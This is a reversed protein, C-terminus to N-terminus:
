GRRFNAAELGFLTDSWRLSSRVSPDGLFIPEGPQVPMVMSTTPSKARDQLRACLIRAQLVLVLEDSRLCCRRTEGIISATNIIMTGDAIRIAKIM